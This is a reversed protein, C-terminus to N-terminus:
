VSIKYYDVLPAYINFIIKNTLCLISIYCCGWIQWVVRTYWCSCTDIMLQETTIVGGQTIHQFMWLDTPSVCVCLYVFLFVIDFVCYVPLCQLKVQRWFMELKLLCFIIMLRIDWLNKKSKLFLKQIRLSIKTTFLFRQRWKKLLNDKYLLLACFM